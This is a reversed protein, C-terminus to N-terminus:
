QLIFRIPVTMGQKKEIGGPEWRPMAKMVRLAEEDLEPADKVGRKVLFNSLNGITDVEFYIYVTGQRGYKKASDPYHINAKLYEHFAEDGGPFHPIEPFVCIFSDPSVQTTKSGPKPITDQSKLLSSSTLLIVILVILRM